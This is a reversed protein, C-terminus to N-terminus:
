ENRVELEKLLVLPQKEVTKPIKRKIIVCIIFSILFCITFTIFSIWIEGLLLWILWGLFISAIYFYLLLILGQIPFPSKYFSSSAKIGLKEECATIVRIKSYFILWNILTMYIGMGCAILGLITIAIHLWIPTLSVRFLAHFIGVIIVLVKWDQNRTHHIDAWQIKIYEILDVM